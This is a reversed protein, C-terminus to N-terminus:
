WKERDLDGMVDAEVLITDVMTRTISHFGSKVSPVM